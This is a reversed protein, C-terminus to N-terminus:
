VHARGIEIDTLAVKAALHRGLSTGLREGGGLPGGPLSWCGDFPQRARRWLLVELRHGHGQASSEQASPAPPTRVQFVVALVEHRFLAM